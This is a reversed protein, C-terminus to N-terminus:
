VKNLFKNQFEHWTEEPLDSLVNNKLEGGDQMILAHQPEQTGAKALFSKIHDMETELWDSAKNGPFLSRTETIWDTPEIEMIWGKQYPDEMIHGSETQITENFGTITGTLPSRVNLQKNDQVLSLLVEGKKITEGKQKLYKVNVDRTLHVLLNDLGIKAMGSRELFVWTHSKNLFVGGPVDMLANTVIKKISQSKVKEKGAVKRSLLIWFPVLLAFFLITILYEIGKTEFLNHYTFENM